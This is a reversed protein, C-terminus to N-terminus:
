TTLSRLSVVGRVRAVVGLQRRIEGRIRRLERRARRIAQGADEPPGFRALTATQVFPATDIAYDREIMSGLEPLTASAPLEYGQDALFGVLDRRCAAALARPDRAAFRVRRRVAKLGAVLLFAGGLVLAALALLSPGRERVVSGGGGGSGSLGAADELGPRGQLQRRLADLTASGGLLSPDRFADSTDFSRQVPSYAIDLVGRGPTPDFPLWGFRPFYVEVWTHAEHDTVTWEREDEDYSGSTFGAAVRAPVGLLRLMLAMAGAYHQCYGRKHNLVFDVLAPEAGSPLPPREDYRFGGRTRFWAELAVAAAYPTRAEGVVERAQDYLPRNVSILFDERYRDFFVDMLATRGSTGFPAVEVTQVVELFEQIGDPYETGARALQSPKAEPVYSLVTYRQGRRLSRPLVAIEGASIRVQADQPPRWRVPQAAGSLHQDRLAEVTVDQRVWRNENSARRPLLPNLGAADIEDAGTASGLTLSEAWGTGTYDDLATARWYLSRKPGDVHVRLVETRKEPFSIGQYHSNWVYRVGVPDDPRDYPDWGQWSLFAGKSVANSSSAAAAALVLVLAVAAGQALGRTPRAGTRLLFLIALVGALALAGLQLPRGGPVLTAPWGVSIVFVLAAGIPRRAAVLMGTGAFFGFIAVLVVSHMLPFDGRQFPLDTDYFGLFGDKLGGVVPGFFDHEGGPRAETVAVGFAAGLATLAAAVAIGAVVRRRYGLALALAPLVGLALMEAVDTAQASGVELRLWSPVILLAALVLLVASRAV